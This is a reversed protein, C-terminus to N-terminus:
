LRWRKHLENEKGRRLPEGHMRLWNNSNNRIIKKKYRQFAENTKALSKSYYEMLQINNMALYNGFSIINMPLFEEYEKYYKKAKETIEKANIQM